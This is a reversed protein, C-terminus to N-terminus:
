ESGLLAFPNNGARKTITTGVPAASKKRKKKSPGMDKIASSPVIGLMKDVAFVMRDMERSKVDSARQLVSSTGDLTPLDKMLGYLVCLDKPMATSTDHAFVIGMIQKLMRFTYYCGHVQALFQIMDWDYETDSAGLLQEWRSIQKAANKAVSHKEMGSSWEVDQYVAVALWFNQASFSPLARQLTDLMNALSSCAINLESLTPLQWERGMSETLLRRHEYLTSRREIEPVVLNMLGYALLRTSTSMEWANTRAPCDLLFPLFVNPSEVQPVNPADQGAAVALSPFQLVFESIRPDLRHLAGLLREQLDQKSKPKPKPGPLPSPLSVYESLYLNYGAPDSQIATRKRALLLLQPLTAHKDCVLQYALSHMGDNDPLQLRSAISHMHYTSARLFNPVHDFQIDNFFCVEGKSGLDHVLLDSDGTFVIGGGHKLIRACYLDAEGPVTITSEQFTACARIADIVSPVLFPPPPINILKPHFTGGCYLNRSILSRANVPPRCPSQHSSHYTILKLTQMRLRELRTNFKSPPLFGDFCVQKINVGSLVLGNLWAITTAGIEDYTPIAELGNKAWPKNKLCIYYIHYALGPGDIVADGALRKPEAYPQLHSLLHPVGM